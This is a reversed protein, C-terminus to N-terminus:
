LKSRAGLERAEVAEKVKKLARSRLARINEPTTNWRQALGLSVANPLRQHKEGFKHHLVTVLVVDKERETLAELAERVWEAMQSLEAPKCEVIQDLLNPESVVNMMDPVRLIDHIVNNAIGGLWARARRRSSDQTANGGPDFTHAGDYARLFTAQLVDKVGEEGGSLQLTRPRCLFNYLWEAHRCYFEAFADRAEPECERMGMYGLLDADTEGTFDIETKPASPLRM